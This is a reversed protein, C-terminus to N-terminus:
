RQEVIHVRWGGGVEKLEIRAGSLHSGSGQGGEVTVVAASTGERLYEVVGPVEPVREPLEGSSSDEELELLLLTLRSRAQARALALEQRNEILKLDFSVLLTTGLALTTLSALTLLAAILAIGCRPSSTM